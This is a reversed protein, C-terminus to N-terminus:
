RNYWRWLLTRFLWERSTESGSYALPNDLLSDGAGYPYKVVTTLYHNGGPVLAFARGQEPHDLGFSYDMLADLPMHIALQDIDDVSSNSPESHDGETYYYARGAIPIAQSLMAYLDVAIDPVAITDDIFSQVIMNTYEPLSALQADTVDCALYPAMIYICAGASGWGEQMIGRYAMTAAAGGGYSHGIFGVRSMDFQMSYRRVATIFGNWLSNYRQSNNQGNMYHSFVAAVGQSAIHKLLAAYSTYSTTNIGPSFFMVPVVGSAEKPYLVAANQFEDVSVSYPGTAGYKMANSVAPFLLCLALFLTLGVFRSLHSKRNRKSGPFSNLQQM